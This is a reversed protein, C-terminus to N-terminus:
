NPILNQVQIASTQARLRVSSKASFHVVKINSIPKTVNKGQEDLNVQQNEDSMLMAIKSIIYELTNQEAGAATSYSELVM